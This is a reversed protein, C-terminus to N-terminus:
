TIAGHSSHRGAVISGPVSSAIVTAFVMRPMRIAVLGDALFLITLIPSDMWPMTVPLSGIVYKTARPALVSCVGYVASSAAIAIAIFCSGSCRAPLCIVVIVLM